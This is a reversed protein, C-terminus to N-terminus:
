KTHHSTTTPTATSVGGTLLPALLGACLLFRILWAAHTDARHNPVYM